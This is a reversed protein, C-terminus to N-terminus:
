AHGVVEVGQDSVVLYHTWPMRTVKLHGTPTHQPQGKDDLDAVLSYALSEINAPSAHFVMPLDHIRSDLLNM